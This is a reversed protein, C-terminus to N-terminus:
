DAVKIDALSVHRDTTANLVHAQDGLIQVATGCRPCFLDQERNNLSTLRAGCEPCKYGTMKLRRPAGRKAIEAVKAALLHFDNPLHLFLDYPLKTPVDREHLAFGTLILPIALIAPYDEMQVIARHGTIDKEPNEVPRDYAHDARRVALVIVQPKFALVREWDIPVLETLVTNKALILPAAVMEACAEQDDIVAVRAM